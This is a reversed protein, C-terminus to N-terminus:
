IVVLDHYVVPLHNLCTRLNVGSLFGEGELSVLIIWTHLMVKGVATWVLGIMNDLGPDTFEAEDSGAIQREPFVWSTWGPSVQSLMAAAVLVAVPVRRISLWRKGSQEFRRSPVVSYAFGM